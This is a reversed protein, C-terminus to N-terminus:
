KRRRLFQSPVSVFRLFPLLFIISFTEAEAYLAPSPSIPLAVSFANSFNSEQTPLLWRELQFILFIDMPM